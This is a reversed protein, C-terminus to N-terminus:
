SALGMKLFNRLLDSGDPTGISEPHFQVGWLPLERHRLAMIVGDRTRATVELHAPVSDPDVTLSHYRMVELPSPLGEFLGVGDHLVESTKGHMISPARVVDAGYHHAIGQHGLCVGLIPVAGAMKTVIAACVGFDRAKQPHGPGPSLVVRAAGIARVGDLDVADNRAVHVKAGLESIRQYLNHTFSDYNDIILVDPATSSVSM